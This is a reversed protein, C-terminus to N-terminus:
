PRVQFYNSYIDNLKFLKSFIELCSHHGTHIKIHILELNFPGMHKDNLINLFNYIKLQLRIIIVWLM